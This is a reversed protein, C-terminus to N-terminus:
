VLLYIQVGLKDLLLGGLDLFSLFNGVSLKFFVLNANTCHLFRASVIIKLDQEAGAADALKQAKNIIDAIDHFAVLFKLISVALGNVVELGYLCLILLGLGLHFVALCLKLSELGLLFLVDGLGISNDSRKLAIYSGVGRQEALKGRLFLSKVGVNLRLDGLQVFLLLLLLAASAAAASASDAGSVENPRAVAGVYCATLTRAGVGDRALVFVM